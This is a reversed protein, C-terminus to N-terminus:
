CSRKEIKKGKRMSQDEPRPEKDRLSAECFRLPGLLELNMSVSSSWRAKLQGRCLLLKAKRVTKNEKSNRKM